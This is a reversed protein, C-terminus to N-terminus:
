SVKNYYNSEEDLIQFKQQDSFGMNRYSERKLNILIIRSMEQKSNSSYDMANFNSNTERVRHPLGSLGIEVLFIASILHVNGSASTFWM